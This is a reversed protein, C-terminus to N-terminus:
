LEDAGFIRDIRIIKEGYCLLCISLLKEDSLFMSRSINYGYSRKWNNPFAASLKINKYKSAWKIFATAEEDTDFTKMILKYKFESSQRIVVNHNNRLCERVKTNLPRAIVYLYGLKAMKHILTISNTYLYGGVIKYDTYQNCLMWLENHSIILDIADSKSIFYQYKSGNTRQQLLYLFYKCDRWNRFKDNDVQVRYLYNKYFLKTTPIFKM